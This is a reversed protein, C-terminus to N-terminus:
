NSWDKTGHYFKSIMVTAVGSIAVLFIISLVIIGFIVHVDPEAEWDNYALAKFGWVLTVFTIFYGIISHLAQGIQWSFKMYRKTLLMAYSLIGWAM